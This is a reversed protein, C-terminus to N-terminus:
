GYPVRKYKTSWNVYLVGLIAIYNSPHNHSFTFSELSFQYSIIHIVKSITCPYFVYEQIQMIHKDMHKVIRVKELIDLNMVRLSAEIM